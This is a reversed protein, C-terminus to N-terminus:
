EAACIGWVIRDRGSLDQETHVSRYGKQELLEAVAQGFDAHVEFVLYGGPKLVTQARDAIGRYFRLPDPGSFLATHPEHDRVETALTAAEEDPVYPPNSVVLDLGHPLVGVDDPELVDARAFAVDLGLREANSRAVSLASGSVDCGAVTADPREEKVALAICGSGTGVDLVAPAERTELLGLVVDVVGETEPRPILVDATVHVRLGRFDAHGLIYQLPEGGRRRGVMEELRAADHPGVREDPYAYLQARGCGIVECLMWEANRRASSVDAEELQATAWAILQQRTAPTLPESFTSSVFLATSTEYRRTPKKTAARPM